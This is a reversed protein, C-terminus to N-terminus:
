LPNQVLRLIARSIDTYISSEEAGARIADAIAVLEGKIKPLGARKAINPYLDYLCDELLIPVFIKNNNIARNQLDECRNSTLYNTSILGLVITSKDMEENLIDNVIRGSPIRSIDWKEILNHRELVKLHLSISELYGNDASDSIIFVHPKPPIYSNRCIDFGQFDTLNFVPTQLKGNLEYARIPVQELLYQCVDNFSIFPKKGDTNKGELAEIFVLTFVGQQKRTNIYSKEDAKCSAIVVKGSGVGLGAVLPEFNQKLDHPLGILKAGHADKERFGNAHCCDFILMMKQAKIEKVLSSFEEKRLWTNAADAAFDNPIFYYNEEETDLNKCGGHGSYYILVTANPNGKTQNALEKLAELIGHKTAGRETILQVQENPYGAKHKDILINHLAHADNVTDPLDRGVGIILAYGNSFSTNTM